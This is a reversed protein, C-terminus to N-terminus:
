SSKLTLDEEERYTDRVFDEGNADLYKFFLEPNHSECIPPLCGLIRVYSGLGSRRRAEVALEAALEAHRIQSMSQM